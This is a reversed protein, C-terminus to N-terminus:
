LGVVFSNVCCVVDLKKAPKILLEAWIASTIEPEKLLILGDEMEPENKNFVVSVSVPSKVTVPVIVAWSNWVSNIEDEIINSLPEVINPLVDSSLCVNVPFKDIDPEPTPWIVADPFILELPM